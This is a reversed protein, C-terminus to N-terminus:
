CKIKNYTKAAKLYEACSLFDSDGEPFLSKIM